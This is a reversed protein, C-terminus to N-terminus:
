AARNATLTAEPRLALATGLDRSRLEECGRLDAITRAVRLARHAGRTSMLGCERAQRLMEEGKSDLRVHRELMAADMHANVLVGEGALRLAQRERAVMVLERARASTTSSAEGTAHSGSRTLQVLLDIRETLPGSLRRRHRALEVETCSCREAEGAYGCSCPNTAAVLMFRAPYVTAHRARAIAIRGEELPQRLADLTARAFESLEDLSLRPGGLQHGVPPV